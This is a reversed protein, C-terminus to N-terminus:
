GGGKEQAAKQLAGDGGGSLTLGQELAGMREGAPPRPVDPSAM